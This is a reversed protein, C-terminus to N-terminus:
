RRDRAARGIRYPGDGVRRAAGKWSLRVLGEAALREVAEHVGAMEGRWDGEGSAAAMGRAVESPCLTAGEARRALLALTMARADGGPQTPPDGKDATVPPEDWGFGIGSGIYSKAQDVSTSSRSM